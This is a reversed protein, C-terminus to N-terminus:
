SGKISLVPTGSVAATSLQAVRCIVNFSFPVELVVLPNLTLETSRISGQEEIQDQLWLLRGTDEISLLHSFGQVLNIDLAGNTCLSKILTPHCPCCAGM